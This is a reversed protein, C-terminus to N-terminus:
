QDSDERAVEGEEDTEGESAGKEPRRAYVVNVRWYAHMKKNRLDRRVQACFTFVEEQSWELARTLLALSLGELGMDLNVCQWRGIEQLKEDKHWSNLPFIYEKRVVDVFGAEELSADDKVLGELPRGIKAAAEMLLDHWRALASDKPVSGDDCGLPLILDAVEFWGGPALANYVKKLIKSRDQFCGEMSRCHVYDFPKTWTWPKELDDIEFVCNPPMWEPQIPSLDVGIVEASPFADAYDIAWIGTGTGMDLVHKATKHAPAVALEEDFAMTWIRHQFDQCTLSEPGKLQGCSVKWYAHMQRNRLDKRVNACLALVEAQSWDLVRTLLGLSLGELGIDLNVCQYRGIEKLHEDKPWSNLPWVFDKRVIDVFGAERMAETHKGLGELPRGIKAAAEQLLEHWHWLASDKPVTGDDCGPPLELGGIEVYGGPNLARYIKKIMKPGDAFCGEMSRCYIFDFPENWTWSKELDDLEFICNPPTWEPQIPSLDVGIVSILPGFALVQVWTWFVSPRPTVRLYHWNETSLSSGFAINYTEDNPYSYKGSSMSHYTRGNEAENRRISSTLSALSSDDYLPQGPQAEQM